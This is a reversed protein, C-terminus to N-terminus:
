LINFLYAIKNSLFLFPGMLAFLSEAFGTLQRLSLKFLHRLTLLSDICIDSYHLPRGQKRNTNSKVDWHQDIGDSMWITLPGRKKLSLNYDQWNAVRYRSFKSM